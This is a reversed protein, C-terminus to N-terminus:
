GVLFSHLIRPVCFEFHVCVGWYFASHTDRFLPILILSLSPLLHFLSPLSPLSASAKMNLTDVILQEIQDLNKERLHISVLLLLEGYSCHGGACARSCLRCPLHLCTFRLDGKRWGGWEGPKLGGMNSALSFHLPLDVFHLDAKEDM